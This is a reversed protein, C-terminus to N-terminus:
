LLSLLLVVLCGCFAVCWVLPLYTMLYDTMDTSRNSLRMDDEQATSVKRPVLRHSVRVATLGRLSTWQTM